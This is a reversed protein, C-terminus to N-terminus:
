SLQLSHKLNTRADPEIKLFSKLLGIGYWAASGPSVNRVKHRRKRSLGHAARGVYINNGFDMPLAFFEVKNYNLCSGGAHPQWREYYSEIEHAGGWWPFDSSLLVRIVEAPAARLACYIATHLSDREREISNWAQWKDLHICSAVPLKFLSVQSVKGKISTQVNKETFFARVLSLPLEERTVYHTHRNGHHDNASQLARYLSSGLSFLPSTEPVDFPTYNASVPDNIVLVFSVTKINGDEEEKRDVKIIALYGAYEKKLRALEATNDADIVRVGNSILTDEEFNLGVPHQRYHEITAEVEAPLQTPIVAPQQPAAPWEILDVYTQEQNPYLTTLQTLNLTEHHEPSHVVLVYVTDDTERYVCYSRPPLNAAEPKEKSTVLYHSYTWDDCLKNIAEKIKIQQEKTLRRAHKQALQKRKEPAMKKLADTALAEQTQQKLGDAIIPYVHRQRHTLALEAISTDTWTRALSTDTVQGRYEPSLFEPHAKLIRKFPKLHLYAQHLLAQSMLYRIMPHKQGLEDLSLLHLRPNAKAWQLYDWLLQKTLGGAKKIETRVYQFLLPDASETFILAQGIENASQAAEGFTLPREMVYERLKSQEDSEAQRYEFEEKDECYGTRVPTIQKKNFDYDVILHYANILPRPKQNEGMASAKVRNQQQNSSNGVIVEIYPGNTLYPIIKHYWIDLPLGNTEAQRPLTTSTPDPRM